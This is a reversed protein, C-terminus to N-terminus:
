LRDTPFPRGTVKECDIILYDITQLTDAEKEEIQTMISPRIRTGNKYMEELLEDKEDKLKQIKDQLPKIKSKSKIEPIPDTM